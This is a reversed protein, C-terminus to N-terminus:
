FDILHQNDMVRTPQAKFLYSIILDIIRRSHNERFARKSRAKFEEDGERIYQFLNNATYKEGGEYSTLLFDWITKHTSYKPHLRTILKGGDLNESM